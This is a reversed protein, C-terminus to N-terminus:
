FTLLKRHVTYAILATCGGGRADKVELRERHSTGVVPLLLKAPGYPVDSDPLHFLGDSEYFVFRPEFLNVQKTQKSFWDFQPMRRTEGKDLSFHDFGRNGAPPKWYFNIDSKGRIFSDCAKVLTFTLDVLKIDYLPTITLQRVPFSFSRANQDTERLALYVMVKHAQPGSGGGPIMPRDPMHHILHLGDSFRYIGKQEPSSYGYVAFRATVEVTAPLSLGRPVDVRISVSKHTVQIQNAITTLSPTGASIPATSATGPMSSQPLRAPGFGREQVEGTDSAPGSGEPEPTPQAPEPAGTTSGPVNGVGTSPSSKAPPEDALVLSPSSLGVLGVTLLVTAVSVSILRM